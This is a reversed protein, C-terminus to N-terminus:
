PELRAPWGGRYGALLWVRRVTVTDGGRTLPALTGREVRDFYPQLRAVAEHMGPREDLALVLTDGPAASSQFTPWLEYQNRRGALCTCVAHPRGAAHYALESVDQYREGGIFTHASPAGRAEDVRAALADWGASRAIPDRRAPLPLIPVLAQVYLVAVLVAALAIGRRLWRDSRWTLADAALLAVGPVYSPAPWNAEVSQRLASYAFFVWSGVAVVALAFQADDRARRLARWVAAAGLAFLIPSVLGLQGGILDLERKVASGKPAGLGHQIQFRFSIWDHAANWRLVPLFVLTAIVCAVYPGPERLRARLSPRAIVAVVITLPLLISTYKSAFALGLAVGALSWWGLSARSHLPSQLARVVCYLGAASFALLPADPTALVLGTAALPMLAFVISATRAAVDGAIRRAIGVASLSAAAGALVPLLRVAFASPGAGVLAALATGGRILVAIMPPHDFYGGALHRSWDWYYTEDPFLPLLGALALRVLAAVATVLLAARWARADGSSTPDGRTIM